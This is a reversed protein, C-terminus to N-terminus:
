PNDYDAAPRDDGTSPRTGPLAVGGNMAQYSDRLLQVAYRFNHVFSGPDRSVLQMNFAAGLQGLTWTRTGTGFNQNATVNTAFFYPYIDPNYFISQSALTGEVLKLLNKIEARPYGPSGDGDMDRLVGILPFSTVEPGHCRKCVDILMEEEGTSANVAEMNLTHGGIDQNDSVAMHCGVCGNTQHFPNGSTYTMDQFEFGKFGYLFAAAPFNHPNIFVTNTIGATCDTTKCSSFSGVQAKVAEALSKGSELGQHCTVCVVSKGAYFTGENVFTPGNSRGSTLQVTGEIRLHNDEDTPYAQGDHCANCTIHHPYLDDTSPPVWNPYITNAEDLYNAFGIGSHCRMCYGQNANSFAETFPAASIKAHGSKAWQDQIKRDENHGSHCSAACAALSPKNNAPNIPDCTEFRNVYGKGNAWSPLNSPTACNDLVYGEIPTTHSTALSNSLCQEGAPCDDDSSCTHDTPISCRGINWDDYHTDIIDAKIKELSPDIPQTNGHCDFCTTAATASSSGTEAFEKGGGCNMLLASLLFLIPVCHPFPKLHKMM